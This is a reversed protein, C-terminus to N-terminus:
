RAEFAKWADAASKPDVVREIVRFAGEVFFPGWEIRNPTSSPGIVVFHNSADGSTAIGVREFTQVEGDVVRKRPRGTEVLELARVRLSRGPENGMRVRLAAEPVDGSRARGRPLVHERYTDADRPDVYYTGGRKWASLRNARIAKRVGDPTVGIREAAETVSLTFRTTDREPVFSGALIAKMQLLDTLVAYLPNELVAKTVAGRGPFISQDLIPNVKGYVLETLEAESVRPDNAAEIARQLFAATETSPTPYEIVEGTTTTYRESM